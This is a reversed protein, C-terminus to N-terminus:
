KSDHYSVGSETFICWKSCVTLAAPRHTVIIVTRDTMARLNELLQQETMEDLASTSEDLLLVPRDSFVARAIAIRQTQGESLGAGREGLTTELGQELEKVFTDACAIRLANWLKEDEKMRDTDGFAIIERISGSMLQNGQPVYAFLGRWAATLPYKTGDSDTLFLTGSDSPYLCMLLKLLTSKGCGSTGSFAVYEGKRIELSINKLQSSEEHGSEAPEDKLSQYSFSVDKLELTQFRNQYFKQIEEASLGEEDSDDPYEEAERLRDASALMSYYQPLYGSLNAFPTQIQSVLQLIATMTGYSMTGRLLGYGCFVAGFAYLGNMAAGFGTNCLNSFHNRRMRASQHERMVAAAGAESQREMGFARVIMLNGLREQLFIRLMGDKEQVQRHLRKLIKRFGHTLLLMALGGPVLIVAFIPELALVAILAGILKVIMGGLGPVIQTLGNAVVVTDSTLRNMWEGSHFSTVSAFNKRLLCSFLRSKFRNEMTSRSKESLFRGLTRISIQFIVLGIFQVSSFIFARTNGVVAGDILNRLLIAYLVSTGGLLAQLILLYLIYAKKKGTVESMWRLSNGSKRDNKKDTM